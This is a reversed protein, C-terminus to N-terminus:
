QKEFDSSAYKLFTKVPALFIFLVQFCPNKKKTQIKSSLEEAAIFHDVKKEEVTM